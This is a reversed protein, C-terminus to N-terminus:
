TVISPIKFNSGIKSTYVYVIVQSAALVVTVDLTDNIVGKPFFSDTAKAHKKKFRTVGDALGFTLTTGPHGHM